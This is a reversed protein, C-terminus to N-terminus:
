VIEAIDAYFSALDDAYKRRLRGVFSENGKDNLFEKVLKVLEQAEKSKGGLYKEIEKDQEDSTEKLFEKFRMREEKINSQNIRNISQGKIFTIFSNTEKLPHRPIYYEEKVEIDFPEKSIFRFSGNNRTAMVEVDSNVKLEFLGIETILADDSKTVTNKFGGEIAKEFVELGEFTSSMWPSVYYDGDKFMPTHGNFKKHPNLLRQVRLVSNQPITSFGLFKHPTKLWIKLEKESDKVAENM